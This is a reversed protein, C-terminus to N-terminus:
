LKYHSIRVQHPQRLLLIFAKDMANTLSTVKRREVTYVGVELAGKKWPGSVASCTGFNPWSLIRASKNFVITAM